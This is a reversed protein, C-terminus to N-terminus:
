QEPIIFNQLIANVSVSFQAVTKFIQLIQFSALITKKYLISDKMIISKVFLHNDFTNNLFDFPLIYKTNQMLKDKFDKDFDISEIALISKDILPLIDYSNIQNSACLSIRLLSNM